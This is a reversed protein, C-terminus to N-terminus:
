APVGPADEAKPRTMSGECVFMVRFPFIEMLPPSSLERRTSSSARIWVYLSMGRCM